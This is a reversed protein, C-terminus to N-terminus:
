CTQLTAFVKQKGMPPPPALLIPLWAASLCIPTNTGRTLMESRRPCRSQQPLLASSPALAPLPLATGTSLCIPTNTGRTLIQSEDEKQGDHASAKSHCSRLRLLLHRCPVTAPRGEQELPRRHHQRDTQRDRLAATQGDTQRDRPAPRCRRPEAQRDTQRDRSVATQGYTWQDWPAPHCRRPEAPTRTGHQQLHRHHLASSTPPCCSCAGQGDAHLGAPLHCVTRRCQSFWALHRRASQEALQCRSGERAQQCRLSPYVQLRHM